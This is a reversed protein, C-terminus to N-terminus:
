ITHKGEEETIFFTSFIIAFKQVKIKGQIRGSKVQWSWSTTEKRGRGVYSMYSCLYETLSIGEQYLMPSGLALFM